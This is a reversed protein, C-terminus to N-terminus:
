NDDYIRLLEDDYMKSRKKLESAMEKIGYKEALTEKGSFLNIGLGLRDGEISCGLSALATPFMDLQTFERNKTYPSTVASNIFCNYIKRMYDDSFNRRSYEFDMSKHDGVIIVTTNEYFDQEQLWKIFQDIQKSACSYVNEYQEDYENGCYKCPHGSIHHTDVTLMFFAFPDGDKTIKPLEQKAYDYLYHDEMGWFGDWYGEPIIGDTQATNYDYITLNGHQEFYKNRGGFSISSGCMFSQNYGNEKLIDTLTTISPFFNKRYGMDNGTNAPVKLPLGATEALLAGMTWTAGPVVYSGGVEESESFNINNKALSYLEPITNHDLGGGLEKSFFSAEMSEMFIYILNRKNEPFEISVEKADVYENEIFLSPTLQYTIYDFAKLRNAGTIVLSLSIVISLILSVARKFPFLSLKVNKVSIQVGKKPHFLLIFCVAATCIATPPVAFTLYSKILETSVGTLNSSLTFLIADFGLDGYVRSCWIASFLALFGIFVFLVILIQTLVSRFKKM